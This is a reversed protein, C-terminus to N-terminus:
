TKGDKGKVEQALVGGYQTQSSDHYLHIRGGTSSLDLLHLNPLNKTIEQIEKFVKTHTETWRNGLNQPAKAALDQLKRFKAMIKHDFFPRLYNAFGIFSQLQILTQPIEWEQLKKM